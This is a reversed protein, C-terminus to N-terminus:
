QCGHFDHEGTGLHSRLGQVQVRFSRWGQEESSHTARTRHSAAATLKRVSARISCGCREAAGSRVFVCIVVRNLNLWFCYVSHQLSLRWNFRVSYYQVPVVRDSYYHSLCSRGTEVSVTKRKDADTQAPCDKPGERHIM